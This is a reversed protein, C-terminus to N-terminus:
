LYEDSNCTLTRPKKFEPSGPRFGDESREKNLSASIKDGNILQCNKKHKLYSAEIFKRGCNLCEVM